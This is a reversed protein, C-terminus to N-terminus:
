HNNQSLQFLLQKSKKINELCNAAEFFLNFCSNNHFVADKLMEGPFEIMRISGPIYLGSIHRHPMHEAEFFSALVKTIYHGEHKRPILILGKHMRSCGEYFSYFMDFNIGILSHEADEEEFKLIFGDETVVDPILKKDKKM